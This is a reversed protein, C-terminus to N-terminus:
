IILSVLRWLLLPTSGQPVPPVHGGINVKLPCKRHIGGGGIDPPKQEQFM